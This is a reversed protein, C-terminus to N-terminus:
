GRYLCIKYGASESMKIFVINDEWVIVAIVILTEILYM